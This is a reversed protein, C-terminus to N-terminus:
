LGSLDFTPTYIDRASSREQVYGNELGIDFFFDIMAEYERLSIRRCLEKYDKARYMPTYQAMLSIYVEKPLNDRIWLLVQKSDDGLGPLMLHRIILGRKIIGDADFQPPGVQKYMELIAATAHQFYHPAHSYKIAYEDSYYKLDPLYVDILGDMHHLADISEYANSNYVVPIHLGQNKAIILAQKIQPMFPTPSVLNINHAGRNQQKIFLEALTEINMEKGFDQQSISYNQCFVCKLNCHSFFITGSGKTGSICPEEWLHLSALAAKPLAGARCIGSQGRLRDIGCQRPCLRCRKLWEMFSDMDAAPAEEAQLDAASVM